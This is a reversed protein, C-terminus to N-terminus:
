FTLNLGGMMTTVQPYYNGAAGQWGVTAFQPAEPDFDKFSTFLFPNDVSFYVRLREMKIKSLLSSSLSYGVQINRIRLYSADEVFFSSTQGYNRSATNLSLRPFSANPTEPTWCNGVARELVKGSNPFPQIAQATLCRSVNGVGQALVSIDFNKYSGGLQFGYNIEPFSTGLSKRDYQDITNDPVGNPGSIDRYRIDGPQAGGFTATQNPASNVEDQTQFLGMAEYGYINNIPDGVSVGPTDGGALNTIRNKVYSFNANAWYGIAGIQNRHKIILDFGKNSVGGANVTPPYGGLISPQPLSLLINDTQRVYYDGTFSLKGNFFDADIGFNSETSTEWSINENKLSRNEAIGPSLTGGFTYNVGTSYTPLFAYNGIEQNGLKGWSGRLKLNNLWENVPFFSEKSINWGASFSPFFGFRKDKPFRSTGDYRFNAELLYKEKFNYNLRGFFSRLRYDIASGYNSWTAANGASLQDVSNNPLDYIAAGIQDYAVSIQDYGLLAKVNHADNFTHTYDLFGQLNIELNESRSDSVESRYTTTVVDYNYLQLEKTFAHYKYTNDTASAIGKIKLDKLLTYDANLTFLFTNTYDDQYGGDRAIATSNHDYPFGGWNGNSYKITATPAERYARLVLEGISMSPDTTKVRSASMNVGIKFRTSFDQDFNVRLNYRNSSTNAILGNRSLYGLSINYKTNNSGGNIGLFDQQQFATQSFLSNVWDSNPHFDPDSGDKYKRIDEATYKPSGGDNVLAENYLTAYDASNAYQPLRTANQVGFSNNFTITNKGAKGRKTTILLVGNAGRVGYISASSADKLVSVSEIDNPDINTYSSEVGDVIVLPDNNGLTGIGRIRITGNDRGPQGSSQEVTLGPIQGTLLNSVDQAPRDAIQKASVMEISGTLNIKKQIGYGIVMVEDLQKAHEKLLLKIELNKQSDIEIELSSYGIYSIILISRNTVELSFKGNIDTMTGNKSGKIMVTAGIIPNGNQDTVIGTIKKPEGKSENVKAILVVINNRELKYNINSNILLMSMAKDISVDKVQLSSIKDLGKLGENYFFRYQSKTEIVKLIEKLPRNSVDVSVQAYLGTSFFVLFLFLCGKLLIRKLQPKTINKKPM